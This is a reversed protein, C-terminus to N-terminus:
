IDAKLSKSMTHNNSKTDLPKWLLSSLGSTSVSILELKSYLESSSVLVLEIRRTYINDDDIGGGGDNDSDSM